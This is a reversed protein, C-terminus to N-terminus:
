LDDEQVNESAARRTTTGRFRWERDRKTVGTELDKDFQRLLAAFEEESFHRSDAKRGDRNPEIKPAVTNAHRGAPM